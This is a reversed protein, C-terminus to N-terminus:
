VNAIGEWALGHRHAIIVGLHSYINIAVIQGDVLRNAEKSALAKLAPLGVSNARVPLPLRGTGTNYGHAVYQVSFTFMDYGWQLYVILPKKLQVM